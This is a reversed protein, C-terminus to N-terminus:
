WEGDIGDFRNSKTIIRREVSCTPCVFTGTKKPKIKSVRIKFNDLPNTFDVPTKRIDDNKCKPYVVTAM